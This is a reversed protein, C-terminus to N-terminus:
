GASLGIALQYRKLFIFSSIHICFAFCLYYWYKQMLIYKEYFILYENPSSIWETRSRPNTNSAILINLNKFPFDYSELYKWNRVLGNSIQQGLAFNEMRDSKQDAGFQKQEVESTNTWLFFCNKMPLVKEACSAFCILVCYPWSISPYISLSLNNIMKWQNVTWCLDVACFFLAWMTKGRNTRIQKGIITTVKTNTNTWIQIWNM